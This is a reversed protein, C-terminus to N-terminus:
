NAVIGRPVIIPASGRPDEWVMVVTKGGQVLERVIGIIEMAHAPDRYTTPEDLLVVPTDAGAGNGDLLSFTPFTASRLVLHRFHQM